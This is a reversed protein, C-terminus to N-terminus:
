NNIFIQYLLPYFEASLKVRRNHSTKGEVSEIFDELDRHCLICIKVVKNIRYHCKPYIHHISLSKFEKCNPCVGKKKCM